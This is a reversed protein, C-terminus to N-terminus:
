IRYSDNILIATANLSEALKDYVIDLARGWGTKTGQQEIGFTELAKQMCQQAEEESAHVEIIRLGNLAFIPSLEELIVSKDWKPYIQGFDVVLKDGNDIAIKALQCITGLLKLSGFDRFETKPMGMKNLIQKLPGPKIHELLKFLLKCRNLFESQTIELSIVDGLPKLAEMTWWGHYNVEEVSFGGIDKQELFLGMRDALFALARILQLYAYIV